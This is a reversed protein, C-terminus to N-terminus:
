ERLIDIIKDLLTKVCASAGGSVLATYTLQFLDKTKEQKGQRNAVEEFGRLAKHLERSRKSIRSKAM